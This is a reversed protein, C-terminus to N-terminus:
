PLIIGKSETLAHLRPMHTLLIKILREHMPNQIRDHYHTSELSSASFFPKDCIVRGGEVEFLAYVPVVHVSERWEGLNDDLQGRQQMPLLMTFILPSYSGYEDRNLYFDFIKRSYAVFAMDKTLDETAVFYIAGSEKMRILTLSEPHSGDYTTLLPEFDIDDAAACHAFTTTLVILALLLFIKKAM